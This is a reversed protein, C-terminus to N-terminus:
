RLMSFLQHGKLQETSDLRFLPLKAAAFVSNFIADRRQRKLQAHSPDDLEICCMVQCDTKRIIVFDCHWQSIQRFLSNFEPSNRKYKRTPEVLDTLRVCCLVRFSDPIIADLALYFEVESKSLLKKKQYAEKDTLLPSAKKKKEKNNPALMFASFLIVVLIFWVANPVSNLLMQM